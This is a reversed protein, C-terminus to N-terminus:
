ASRDDSASVSPPRGADRTDVGEVEAPATCGCPRPRRPPWEVPVCDALEAAAVDHQGVPCGVDDRFVDVLTGLPSRASVFGPPVTPM